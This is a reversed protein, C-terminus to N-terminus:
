CTTESTTTSHKTPTPLNTYTTGFHTRVAPFPSGTRRWGQRYKELYQENTELQFAVYFGLLAEEDDSYHLGYMIHRVLEDESYQTSPDLKWLHKDPNYDENFARYKWREWATAVLDLYRHAPDRILHEYEANWRQEGTMYHCLKFSMLLELSKLPADEIDFDNNMTDRTLKAWKTGQGTADVMTNGNNSLCSCFNRMSSAILKKLTLEETDTEDLIDKLVDPIPADGLDLVPHDNKGYEYLVHADSIVTQTKNTNHRFSLGGPSPEIPM